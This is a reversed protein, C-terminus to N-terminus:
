LRRTATWSATMAVEMCTSSAFHGGVSQVALMPSPLATSFRPLEPMPSTFGISLKRFEHMPSRLRTSLKPFDSM